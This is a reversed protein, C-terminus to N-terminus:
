KRHFGVQKIDRPCMRPDDSNVNRVTEKYLKAPGAHGGTASVVDKVKQLVSPNTRIFPRNTLSNGHAAPIACVPKGDYRIVV